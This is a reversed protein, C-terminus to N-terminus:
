MRARWIPPSAGSTARMRVKWVATAKMVTVIASAAAPMRFGYTADACLPTMLADPVPRRLEQRRDGFVAAGCVDGCDCAAHEVTQSPCYLLRAVTGTRTCPLHTLFFPPRVRGGNKM